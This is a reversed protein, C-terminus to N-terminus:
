TNGGCVTGPNAVTTGAVPVGSCPTIHLVSVDDIFMDNGYASLGKFIIYNTATNFTAPITFQYEFWGTASELPTLSLSRNVTGLLTAGTGSATTNAYVQVQDANSAYGPDRYMWFKVVNMGNPYVLNIVPTRLEAASGSTASFSKFCAMGAGSHTVASPYITPATSQGVVRQWDYTGSNILSTWGTPPFTTADFSESLLVQAFSTTTGGLFCLCVLYLLSKLKM